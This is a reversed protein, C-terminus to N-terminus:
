QTARSRWDFTFPIPAPATPSFPNDLTFTGEAIGEYIGAEGAATLHLTGSAQWPIEDGSMMLQIALQREGDRGITTTGLPAHGGAGTFAYIFNVTLRYGNALDANVVLSRYTSGDVDACDVLTAAVPEGDFSVTVYDAITADTDTPADGLADMLDSADQPLM